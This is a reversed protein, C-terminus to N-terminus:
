RGGRGARLSAGSYSTGADSLLDYEDVSPRWPEPPPLRANMALLAKSPLPAGNPAVLEGHMHFDHGPGLRPPFQRPGCGQTSSRPRPFDRAGGLWASTREAYGDSSCGGCEYPQGRKLPGGCSLCAVPFGM